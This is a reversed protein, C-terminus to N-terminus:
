VDRALFLSQSAWTSIVESTKRRGNRDRFGLIQSWITGPISKFIAWGRSVARLSSLGSTSKFIIDPHPEAKTNYIHQRNKMVSEYTIRWWQYVICVLKKHNRFLVRKTVAYSTVWSLLYQVFNNEDQICVRWRNWSLFDSALFHAQTINCGNNKRFSFAPVVSSPM